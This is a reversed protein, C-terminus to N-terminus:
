GFATLDVPVIGHSRCYARYRAFGTKWNEVATVEDDAGLFLVDGGLINLTIVPETNDLAQPTHRSAATEFVLSGAAAIWEHEVYKWRGQLTYVTVSGGHQHRPLTAGAPAKILAICEGRVPDLKLYKVLVEENYPAFPIWPMSEDDILKTHIREHFM